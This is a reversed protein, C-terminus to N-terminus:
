NTKFIYFIGIVINEGNRIELVINRTTKSRDSYFGFSQEKYNKEFRWDREDTFQVLKNWENSQFIQFHEYM